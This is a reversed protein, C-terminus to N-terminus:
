KAKALRAKRKATGRLLAEYALLGYVSRRQKDAQATAAARLARRTQKNM